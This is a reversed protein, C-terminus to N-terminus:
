MGEVARIDGRVISLLSTFKMAHTWCVQRQVGSIGAIVPTRVTVNKGGEETEKGEM